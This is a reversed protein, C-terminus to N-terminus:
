FSFVMCVETLSGNHIIRLDGYSVWWHYMDMHKDICSYQSCLGLVCTGVFSILWHIPVSSHAFGQLVYTGVFSSGVQKMVYTSFQSCLGAVSGATLCFVGKVLLM